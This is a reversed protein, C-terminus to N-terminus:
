NTMKHNIVIVAKDCVACSIKMVGRSADVGVKMGHGPHCGSTLVVEGKCDCGPTQCGGAAEKFIEDITM